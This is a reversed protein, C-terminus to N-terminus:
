GCFFAKSADPATTGQILTATYPGLWQVVRPSEAHPLESFYERLEPPVVM